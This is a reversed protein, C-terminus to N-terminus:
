VLPKRGGEKGVKKREEKKGEEKRGRGREKEGQFVRIKYKWLFCPFIFSLETPRASFHVNSIETHTNLRKTTDSEKHGCPSYGALSRQGHSEGPLFVLTPQM